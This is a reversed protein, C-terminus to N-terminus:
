SGGSSKIELSRSWMINREKDLKVFWPKSGSDPRGFLDGDTSATIGSLIYCGDTSEKADYIRDDDGGGFTKQWLVNGNEDIKALWADYGGHNLTIDHDKSATYGAPLFNGDTAADMDYFMYVSSGGMNKQWLMNGDNDISFIWADSAGLNGSIDGDNSQAQGLLMFNASATRVISVGDPCPIQM